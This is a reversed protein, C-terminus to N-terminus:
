VVFGLNAFKLYRMSYMRSGYVAFFITIGGRLMLKCILKKLAASLAVRFLRFRLLMDYLLPTLCPGKHLVDNLSNEGTLKASADFVVMLKTSQKESQIVARHPLYMVNGAEPSDGVEEIVGSKFQQQFIEDYAKLLEPDRDLKKKLAQLRNFSM